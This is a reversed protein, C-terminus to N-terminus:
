DNCYIKINAPLKTFVIEGGSINEVREGNLEACVAKDKLPVKLVFGGSCGADGYIDATIVNEEKKIDYNIDGFYTPLNKVKVGQPSDLWKDDVGAALVIRNDQEYVFMSRIFNVAIAGIWTHPMDGLYQPRFYEEHVVEAWHKWPRPRMDNLFYNIMKLAKDKEGLMLYATANRIEYPTYAATLGKEIRPYFTGDYYTDLTYMLDERQLHSYEGTPWVSIATSTADFDAKEFCGPINKINKQKQLLEINNLLNKRLETEEKKMWGTLEERGAVKALFQGDKWGKLAWFDDWLSHQAPFYGEHSNSEPLIGYFPTNKYEDTLRKARLEELFKLAKVISDFNRIVFDKDKTFRYYDAVAFIYAGQGDWEFWDKGWGPMQGNLELMCPIEGGPKQSKSIWDLYDRVEEYHGTKLLAACQVSGDRIWSREYNRPGPHLSVFDRNVLLYALNAKMVDVLEKQPIDIEFTNLQSKWYDETEALIGSFKEEPNKCSLLGEVDVDGRLPLVFYFQKKRGAPINFDFVSAGSIIGEPDLVTKRDPVKGDAIYEIIEGEKFSVGGSESPKRLFVISDKNNVKVLAGDNKGVFDLASIKSIGGHQWKPSLQLARITIFLKGKLPKGGTNDLTYIVYSSSTNEDGWTFIKQEFILNQYEWVVSPIPLYEDELKQTIKVDGAAIFKGDIYLYPMLLFSEKGPEIAGYSSILSEVPDSPAGTVTWYEQKNYIWDPFYGAPSDEAMVNYLREVTASEDKGKLTLECLSFKNGASNECLIKIHRADTEDIYILDRGGNSRSTEFVTKWDEGNRSVQIKYSKPYSEGWKIEFGGLGKEKKLDIEVWESDGDESNWCTTFDGDMINLPEADGSSVKIDPTEGPEKLTIELISAGWGTARKNCVIRIYRAETMKFYIDDTKGDSSNTGFVKIWNEADESLLVDYASAFADEWFITLGALARNELLDIQLWQPDEFKSSWRTGMNGDFAKDPSFGPEQISSATVNAPLGSSLSSGSLIVAFFYLIFTRKM